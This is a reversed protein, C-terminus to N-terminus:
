KRGKKKSKNIKKKDVLEDPLFKTLYLGVNQEGEEVTVKGSKMKDIARLMESLPEIDSGEIIQMFLTYYKSAFSDFKNEMVSIFANKNDKRLLVMEDTNMHELMAIVQDSITHADPLNDPNIEDDQGFDLVTGNPDINDVFQANM